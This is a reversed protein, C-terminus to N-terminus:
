TEDFYYFSLDCGCVRFDSLVKVVCSVTYCPFTTILTEWKSTHVQSDWKCFLVHSGGQVPPPLALLTCYYTSFTQDRWTKTEINSSAKIVRMHSWIWSNEYSRHFSVTNCPSISSQFGTISYQRYTIPESTILFKKKGSATFRQKYCGHKEM